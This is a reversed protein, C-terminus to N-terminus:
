KEYLEPRKCNRHELEGSGNKFYKHHSGIPLKCKCCVRKVKSNGGNQKKVVADLQGESQETLKKNAIRLEDSLVSAYEKWYDIDNDFERQQKELWSKTRM